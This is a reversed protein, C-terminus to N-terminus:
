VKDLMAESLLKYCDSWAQQVEDNWEDKLAVHLTWLLAVGVLDYHVAKVGYDVHRAAMAAIEEVAEDLRDLRTVIYTLMDVLKLYQKEMDEPFLRRIAPQDNFLKTYFADGIISPDILMVIKWTRKVINIQERTM